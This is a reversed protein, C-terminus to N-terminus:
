GLFRAARMAIQSIPEELASAVRNSQLFQVVARHWRKDLEVVERSGAALTVECLKGVVIPILVRDVALRERDDRGFNRINERTIRHFRAAPSTEVLQQLVGRLLDKSKAVVDETTPVVSHPELESEIAQILEAPTNVRIVEAAESRVEVDSIMGGVIRTSKNGLCSIFTAAEMSCDVLETDCLDCDEFVTGNLNCKQLSMGDFSISEILLGSLDLSVLANDRLWSRDAWQRPNGRDRFQSMRTAIRFLNRRSQSRLRAHESLWTTRLLALMQTIRGTRALYRVTGEPLDRAQLFRDLKRTSEDESAKDPIVDSMLYRGLIVDRIYPHIFEVIRVGGRQVSSLLAHNLLGQVLKGQLNSASQGIFLDAIATADGEPIGAKGNVFAESAIWGLFQLQGEVGIGLEQRIEERECVKNVIIDIGVGAEGEEPLKNDRALSALIRLFLPNACIALQDPTSTALAILSERQPGSLDYRTDVYSRIQEENFPLIEIVDVDIDGLLGRVREEISKGGAFQQTFISRGALLVKAGGQVLARMSRVQHEAVELGADDALEDFGDVLLVAKRMRLLERFAGFAGSRLEAFRKYMLSEFDVLRRVSEFPVLLPVAENQDQAHREALRRALELTLTTKGHGAPAMVVLFSAAAGSLWEEIKDFFKTVSGAQASAKVDPEIVQGNVGISSNGLVGECQQKLNKALLTSENLTHLFEAPTSLTLWPAKQQNAFPAVPVQPALYYAAHMQQAQRVTQLTNRVQLDVTRAKTSQAFGIVVRQESLQKRSAVYVADVEIPHLEYNSDSLARLVAEREERWLKRASREEAEIIDGPAPTGAGVEIETEVSLEERTKPEIVYSARPLKSAGFARAVAPRVRMERDLYTQGDFADSVVSVIYSQASKDLMTVVVSADEIGIRELESQLASEILHVDAHM